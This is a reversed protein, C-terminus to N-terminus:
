DHVIKPSGQRHFAEVLHKEGPIPPLKRTGLRVCVAKRGAKGYSSRARGCLCRKNKVDVKGPTKCHRCGVAKGGVEGFIPQGKGCQYKKHKVKVTEPSMAKASVVCQQKGDVFGAERLDENSFRACQLEWATYNAERMQTATFFACTLLWEKEQRTLDKENCLPYMFNEYSLERADYGAKRFEEASYGAM